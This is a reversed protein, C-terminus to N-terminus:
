MGRNLAHCEMGGTLVTAGKSVCDAVHRSVKDVAVRDILPGMTSNGDFGDGCIQESILSPVHM